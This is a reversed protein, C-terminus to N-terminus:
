ARRTTRFYVRKDFRGGKLGHQVIGGGIPLERRSFPFYSSRFYSFRFVLIRSDWSTLGLPLQSAVQGASRRACWSPAAAQRATQGGVPQGAQPAAPRLSGDLSCESKALTVAVHRASRAVNRRRKLVSESEAHDSPRSFPTSVTDASGDAHSNKTLKM